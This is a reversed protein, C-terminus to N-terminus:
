KEIRKYFDQYKSCVHLVVIHVQFNLIFHLQDVLNKKQKELADM